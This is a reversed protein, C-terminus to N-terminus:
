FLLRAQRSDEAGTHGATAMKYASHTSVLASTNASEGNYGANDYVDGDAESHAAAQQDELPVGGHYDGGSGQPSAAPSVGIADADIEGDSSDDGNSGFYSSNISNQTTNLRAVDADHAAADVNTEDLITPGDWVVSKSTNSEPFASNSSTVVVTGSREQNAASGYTEEDAVAGGMFSTMQLGKGEMQDDEAGFAGDPSQSQTRISNQSLSHVRQGGGSGGGWVGTGSGTEEGSDANNDLVLVPASLENM